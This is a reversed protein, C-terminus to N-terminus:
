ERANFIAIQDNLGMETATLTDALANFDKAWKHQEALNFDANIDWKHEENCDLFDNVAKSYAKVKEIAAMMAKLNATAGDPISPTAMQLQGCQPTTPLALVEANRASASLFFPVLLFISLYKM